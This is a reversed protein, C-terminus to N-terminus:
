RYWKVPIRRAEDSRRAEAALNPALGAALVGSSVKMFTRRDIQGSGM